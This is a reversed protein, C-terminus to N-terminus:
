SRPELRCLSRQCSNRSALRTHYAQVTLVLSATGQGHEEEVYAALIKVGPNKSVVRRPVFGKPRELMPTVAAIAPLVMTCLLLGSALIGISLLRMRRKM